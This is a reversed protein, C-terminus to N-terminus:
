QVARLDADLKTVCFDTMNKVHENLRAQMDSKLGTLLSTQDCFDVASMMERKRDPTAVMQMDMLTVGVSVACGADSIQVPLYEILLVITGADGAPQRNTATTIGNYALVSTVAGDVSSQAIQCARTDDDDATIIPAVKPLGQACVPAAALSVVFLSVLFCIVLKHM